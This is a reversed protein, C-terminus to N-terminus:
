RPRKLLIYIAGSGGDAPRASCFALVQDKQRLWHNVKSKLVPLKGPSGLGKGHIIRVSRKGASVCQTVFDSLAQRAQDSTMRHLDLEAEISYQGRRLKQLVKQQVGDRAFKLEEGAELVTPEVPDSLMDRLVQQDDEERKVPRAPRSRRFPSIKDQSLERVEGLQTRFLDIDDDLTDDDDNM